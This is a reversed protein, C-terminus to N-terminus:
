KTRSHQNASTDGAGLTVSGPPPIATDRSEKGAAPSYRVRGQELTQNVQGQDMLYHLYGRTARQFYQMDGVTKPAIGFHRCLRLTLDEQSMVPEILSLIEQLRRQLFAIEMDAFPTIEPYVGEHSVVFAEGRLGRLLRLGDFYREVSLIYPFKARYLTKGTIIADGLFWVGDPTKICIHDASHGPTHLIEFDVGCLSMGKQGPLILEDAVCPTDALYQRLQRPSMNYISGEMGADSAMLGAEGLPMLVTAGLETQFFAHNGMHDTHAHSGIIGVCRLGAEHLCTLIQERDRAMGSDLLICRGDKLRYLPIMQWSKLVWTSGCVQELIM